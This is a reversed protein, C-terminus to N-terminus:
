YANPDRFVLSLTRLVIAVDLGISWNDIYEMDFQVRKRLKEISDLEGRLGNVQAWGTMGPKVRHRWAYDSVADALLKGEASTKLAHPRPGVISMHGQLVNFLQPLEDLSTRRIFRGFRTVRSDGATTQTESSVDAAEVYMSRFKILEFEVGNFGQRPQRFLVPGRRELAIIVAVLALLPGFVVLATLALLVDFQRKLWYNWGQLPRDIVQLLLNNGHKIATVLDAPLGAIMPVVYVNASLYRLAEIRRLVEPALSWPVTLYVEDIDRERVEGALSPIDDLDWVGMSQGVMSLGRSQAAVEGPALAECRVGVSLARFVYAGAKLAQHFRHLTLLRMAPLLLFSATVWTFFWLRSYDQTIKAAAGWVTLLSFTIFLALVLRRIARYHDFIHRSRYGRVAKQSGLFVAVGLLIVEIERSLGPVLASTGASGTGLMLPLLGLVILLACDFFVLEAVCQQLSIRKGGIKPSFESSTKADRLLVGALPNLQASKSV